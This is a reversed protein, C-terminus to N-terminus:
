PLTKLFLLLDDWDQDSLQWRPMATSLTEGDADVGEMVARRSDVRGHVDSRSQRRARAHRSSDTLNSYTINPTTFMMTRRGHGDWGHCSACGGDDHRLRGDPRDAARQDRDRGRLHAPGARGPDTSGGSTEGGCYGDDGCPLWSTPTPDPYTPESPTWTGCTWTYDGMTFSGDPNQRCTWTTESSPSMMGMHSAVDEYRVRQHEMWGSMTTVHAAAEARDASVEHAACAATAHRELEAAMANAVCAMDGAVAPDDHGMHQDMVGSMEQMRAVMDAMEAHYTEWAAQCAAPYAMTSTGVQYTTVADTMEQGLAQYAQVTTSPSSTGSTGGACATAVVAALLTLIRDLRVKTRRARTSPLVEYQRERKGGSVANILPLPQEAQFSMESLRM